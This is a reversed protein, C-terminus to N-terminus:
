VMSLANRLFDTPTTPELSATERTFSSGLLDVALYRTTFNPSSQDTSSASLFLFLHFCPGPPVRQCRQQDTKIDSRLSRRLFQNTEKEGGLDGLTEKRKQKKEEREKAM